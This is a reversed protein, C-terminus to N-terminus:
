KLTKERKLMIRQRREPPALCYGRLPYKRTNCIADVIWMNEAIGMATKQVQSTNLICIETLDFGHNGLEGASNYTDTVHALGPV